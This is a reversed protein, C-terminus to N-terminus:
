VGEVPVTATDDHHHLGQERCDPFPCPWVPTVTPVAPPKERDRRAQITNEMAVRQGLSMPEMEDVQRQIDPDIRGYTPYPRHIEPTPM